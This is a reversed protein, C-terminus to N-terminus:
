SHKGACVKAAARSCTACERGCVFCVRIQIRGRLWLPPPCMLLSEFSASAVFPTSFFRKGKVRKLSWLKNTSHMITVGGFARVRKEVLKFHADGARTLTRAGLSFPKRISGFSKADRRERANWNSELTILNAIQIRISIIFARKQDMQAPACGKSAVARHKSERKSCNPILSFAL